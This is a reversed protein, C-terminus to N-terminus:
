SVGDICCDTAGFFEITLLCGGTIVGDVVLALATIFFSGIVFETADFGLVKGVLTGSKVGADVTPGGGSLSGLSSGFSSGFSSIM